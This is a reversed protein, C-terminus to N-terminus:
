KRTKPTPLVLKKKTLELIIEQRLKAQAEAITDNLKAYADSIDVGDVKVLRTAKFQQDAVTRGSVAVETYYRPDPPDTSYLPVREYIKQGNRDWTLVQCIPDPIADTIM